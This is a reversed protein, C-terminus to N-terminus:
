TLLVSCVNVEMIVYCTANGIKQIGIQALNLLPITDQIMPTYEMTVSEPITEVNKKMYFNTTNVLSMIEMVAISSFLEKINTPIIVFATLSYTMSTIHKALKGM